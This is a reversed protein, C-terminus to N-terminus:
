PQAMAPSHARTPIKAWIWNMTSAPPNISGGTGVAVCLAAVGFVLFCNFNSIGESWKAPLHDNKVM